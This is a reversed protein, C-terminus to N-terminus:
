TSILWDPCVLKLDIVLHIQKDSCTCEPCQLRSPNTSAEKGKQPLKKKHTSLKM